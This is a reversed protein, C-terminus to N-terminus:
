MFFWEGEPIQLLCRSIATIFQYSILPVTSDGASTAYKDTPVALIHVQM